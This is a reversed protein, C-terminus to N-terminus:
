QFDSDEPPAIPQYNINNKKRPKFFNFKIM